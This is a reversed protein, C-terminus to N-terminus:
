VSFYGFKANNEEGSDGENVTLYSDLSFNYSHPGASLGTMNYTRVITQGAALGNEVLDDVNTNDVFIEVRFAGANANGANKITM